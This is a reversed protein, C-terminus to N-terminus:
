KPYVYITFVYQMCTGQIDIFEKTLQNLEQVLRAKDESEDVDLNESSSVSLTQRFPFSQSTKQWKHHNMNM